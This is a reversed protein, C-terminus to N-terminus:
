GNPALPHFLSVLAKGLFCGDRTFVHINNIQDKNDGGHFTLYLYPPGECAQIPHVLLLSLVVVVISRRIM